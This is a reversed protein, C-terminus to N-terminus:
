DIPPPAPNREGVSEQAAASGCIEKARHRRPDRIGHIGAPHGGDQRDSASQRRRLGPSRNHADQLPKILVQDVAQNTNSCIFIRKQADFLLENLTSLTRTKGTGPPGWLYTVANIIAHEVFEKQQANLQPDSKPSNRVARSAVQAERNDLVDDALTLNLKAEGSRIKDLRDALADIMATNDIRLVCTGITAGLDEDFSVVLWQSSVSVIRGDCSRNGIAITVKAGEFLEADGDYPFRYGRQRGDLPIAKGYELTVTRMGSGRRRMDKVLARLAAVFREVRTPNKGLELEFDPKEPFTWRSPVGSIAGCPRISGVKGRVAGIPEEAADSDASNPM